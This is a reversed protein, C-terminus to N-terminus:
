VQRSGGRARSRRRPSVRCTRQACATVLSKSALCRLVRDFWHKCVTVTLGVNARGLRCRDKFSGQCGIRGGAVHWGMVCRTWTAAVTRAARGCAPPSSHPRGAAAALPLGFRVPSSAASLPALALAPSLTVPRCRAHTSGQRSLHRLLPRHPSCRSPQVTGCAALGQALPSSPEAVLHTHYAHSSAPVRLAHNKGASGAAKTDRVAKKNTEAGEGNANREMRLSAASSALAPRITHM